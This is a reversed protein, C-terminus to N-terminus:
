VITKFEDNLAYVVVDLSASKDSMLGCRILLGNNIM